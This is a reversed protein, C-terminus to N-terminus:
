AQILPKKSLGYKLTSAGIIGAVLSGCLVGLRVKSGMQEWNSEFALSGIFLSMTFGIGSIIAVGFFSLMNAGEPLKAKGMLIVVYCFGFVGLSKGLILGLIIGLTLPEALASLTIGAFSVGANGFAFVPLILFAVWPHIGHELSHLPSHGTSDKARLPITFGLLVGALTAHVGSKLVCLWMISGIIIYPALRTVGLKNLAVLLLFFLLALGKAMWSINGTYVFAIVLIAGLDDFVALTLLFTKLSKPVSPGFLALVGLAFAIDTAIPIAWGPTLSPSGSICLMYIAAPLVIGGIAGVLPLFVQSLSSLEGEIVERKLELAVLLFFVAMLGDNIWLILPKGLSATGLKIEFHLHLLNQYSDALGSNAFFLAVITAAALALSALVELRLFKEIARM